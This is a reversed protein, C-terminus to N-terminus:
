SLLHPRTHEPLPLPAQCRVCADTTLGRKKHCSACRALPTHNLALYTLLGALNFCLVFALWLVFKLRSGERPKLHLWALVFCLSSTILLDLRSQPFIWFPMIGARRNIMDYLRLTYSRSLLLNVCYVGPSVSSLTRSLSWGPSAFRIGYNKLTMSETWSTKSVETLQGQMDIRYLAGCHQKCTKNYTDM